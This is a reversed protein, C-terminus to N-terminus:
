QMTLRYMLMGDGDTEAYQFGAKELTKISSANDKEVGGELIRVSQVEPIKLAEKLANLGIGKGRYDPCIYFAICGKEKSEVEFDFFGIPLDDDVIIWLYRKQFDILHLFDDAAYSPLFKMGLADSKFWEDIVGKDQIEFKKFHLM